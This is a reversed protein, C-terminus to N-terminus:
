LIFDGVHVAPAGHMVIEFENTLHHNVNVEVLGHSYRVMGFVSHHTHHYHAFTQGGIFVLPQDGPLLARLDYLDILDGFPHKFGVIEDPHGPPSAKLSEFVFSDGPGSDVLIDGRGRAVETNNGGPPKITENAGEAVIVNFGNTLPPQGPPHHKADVLEHKATAITALMVRSGGTHDGLVVFQLDTGTTELNELGITAAGSTVSLTHLSPDYSAFAGPAFPLGPLDVTDGPAFGQVVPAFVNGSLAANEIKLEAIGSLTIAKTGAAGVAALDLVGQQVSIGGSFTNGSHSLTLTGPGVKALSGGNGDILGSVDGSGVTLQDAGLHYTGAGAISGVTLRDNGRPGSSQSFDVTSASDTTFQANAGDSNDEFLTIGGALTDIIANGATSTEFFDLVAYNVITANDASSHGFFEMTYSHSPNTNNTIQANGASSNDFFFLANDNTITANGASSQQSFDMRSNKNGAFEVTVSASGLTSFDSLTMTGNDVINASSASSTNIFAIGSTPTVTISVSDGNLMIGGGVFTLTTIFTGDSRITFNYNPAGANFVWEGVNM